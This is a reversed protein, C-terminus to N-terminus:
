GPWRALVMVRELGEVVSMIQRNNASSENRPGALIRPTCDQPTPDTPEQAIDRDSDPDSVPDADTEVAHDEGDRPASHFLLAFRRELLPNHIEPSISPLTSSAVMRTGHGEPTVLM